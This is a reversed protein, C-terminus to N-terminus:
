ESLLIIPMGPLCAEVFGLLGQSRNTLHRVRTITQNKVSRRFEELMHTFITELQLEFQTPVGTRDVLELYAKQKCIVFSEVISNTITAIM